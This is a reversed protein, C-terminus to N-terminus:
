NLLREATMLCNSRAPRWSSSCGLCCLCGLGEMWECSAQHLGVVFATDRPHETGCIPSSPLLICSCTAYNRARSSLSLPLDHVCNAQCDGVGWLPLGAFAVIGSTATSLNLRPSQLINQIDWAHYAHPLCLPWPTWVSITTRTSILQAALAKSRRVKPVLVDDAHSQDLQACM